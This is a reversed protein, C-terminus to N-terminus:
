MQGFAYQLSSGDYHQPPIHMSHAALMSDPQREEDDSAQGLEGMEHWDFEPSDVVLKQLAQPLDTRQVQAEHLWRQSIMWNAVGKPPLHFGEKSPGVVRDLKGAGRKQQASSGTVKEEADLAQYFKVLRQSRWSAGRTVLRKAQPSDPDAESEESSMCELEFAHDFVSHEFAVIRLRTSARVDLKAKKRQLRRAKMAKLSERSKQHEAAADDKQAKYKQRLTTFYQDFVSDLTKKSFDRESVHKYLRRRNERIDEIVRTKMRGNHVSQKTTKEWVFRVPDEPGLTQGEAISDPLEKDSELGMLRIVHLRMAHQITLCRKDHNNRRKPARHYSSSYSDSGSSRGHDSPSSSASKRRKKSKAPPTRHSISPPATAETLAPSASPTASLSSARETIPPSRQQRVEFQANGEESHSSMLPHSSSGQIFMPSIHDNPSIPTSFHSNPSNSIGSPFAPQVNVCQRLTLVENRLELVQKELEAQRQNQKIEQEQEWAIRREREAEQAEKTASVIRLLEQVAQLGGPTPRARTVPSQSQHQYPQETGTGPLAVQLQPSQAVPQFTPLSPAQNRSQNYYPNLADSLESSGM